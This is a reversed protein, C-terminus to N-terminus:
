DKTARSETRSPDAVPDLKQRKKSQLKSLFDTLENDKEPKDKKDNRKDL